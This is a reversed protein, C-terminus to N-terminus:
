GRVDVSFMTGFGIGLLLAILFFLIITATSSYKMLMDCASLLFYCFCVLYMGWALVTLLRGKDVQKGSFLRSVAMGTAMFTFFLGTGSTIGMSKAYIAVYTTTMGYPVSLLMLDLGAPVGKLLIFRDLSIKPQIESLKGLLHPRLSNFLM